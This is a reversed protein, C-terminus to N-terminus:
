VPGRRKESYKRKNIQNVRISEAIESLSGIDESFRECAAKRRQM